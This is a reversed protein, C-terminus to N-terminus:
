ARPLTVSSDGLVITLHGATIWADTAGSTGTLDTVLRGSGDVSWHGARKIGGPLTAVVSGDGAFSVSMMPNAWTGVLSEQLPRPDREGPPPPATAMAMQTQMAHGIAALEARADADGFVGKVADKLAVRPNSLAGEPLPRDALEEFNVLRRSLPLYFLRVIGADPLAEYSQPGVEVAVNGVEAYHTTTSSSRSHTTQTYKRIAGETSAVRSARLDRTVPDAGLFSVVVLAGALGLFAIGVLPKILAYRAPGEAFWVLLGMVTFVGAFQLEAKRWGRSVGRLNDRQAGTLRGARNNELADPSLSKM